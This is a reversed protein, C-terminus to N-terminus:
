VYFEFRFIPQSIRSEKPTVKSFCEDSYSSVIALLELEGLRLNNSVRYIGALEALLPLHYKFFVSSKQGASLVRKCCFQKEASALYRFDM